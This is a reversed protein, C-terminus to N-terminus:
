ERERVRESERERGRERERETESHGPLKREEWDERISGGFRFSFGMVAGGILYPKDSQRSVQASLEFTMAAWSFVAGAWSGAVPTATYVAKNKIRKKKEITELKLPTM